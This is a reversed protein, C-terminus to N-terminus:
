QEQMMLMLQVAAGERACWVAVIGFVREEHTLRKENKQGFRFQRAGLWFSGFIVKVANKESGFNGGASDLLASFRRTNVTRNYIEASSRGLRNNKNKFATFVPFLSGSM